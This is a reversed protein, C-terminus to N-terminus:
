AVGRSEASRTVVVRAIAAVALVAVIALLTAALGMQGHFGPPRPDCLRDLATELRAQLEPRTGAM